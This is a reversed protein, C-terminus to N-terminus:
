VGSTDRVEFNSELKVRNQNFENFTNYSERPETGGARTTAILQINGARINAQQEVKRLQNIRNDIIPIFAKFFRDTKEIEAIIAQAFETAAVIGGIFPITRLLGMAFGKPNKGFAFLMNAGRMGGAQDAFAERFGVKVKKNIEDEIDEKFSKKATIPSGPSGGVLPMVGAEEEPKFGQFTQKQRDIKQKEAGSTFAGGKRSLESKAKALAKQQKELERIAKTSKRDLEDLNVEADNLGINLSEDVPM